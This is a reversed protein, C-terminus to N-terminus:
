LIGCTGICPTKKLFIHTDKYGGVFVNTPPIICHYDTVHSSSLKFSCPNFNKDIYDIWQIGLNDKAPLYLCM